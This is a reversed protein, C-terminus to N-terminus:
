GVLHHRAKRAKELLERTGQFDERGILEILGALEAEYQRLEELIAVRNTKVIDHWMEPSGSAVRTTDRFGPGCFDKLGSSAERGATVALVAAVLHPLHSSRAVWADHQGPSLRVCRAGVGTWLHEVERIAGEPADGAPTVATVAGQYLDARAAEMGAKESGAMPHSGVFITSSGALAQGMAEVLCVKTSGVDTVVCGPEFAEVCDAAMEPISCVPTCFVALAAGKLAAQPSAHAEDAAGRDLADQRTEVRRAYLSVRALGRRRLAMGLSGGM